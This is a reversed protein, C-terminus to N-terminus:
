CQSSSLIKSARTFRDNVKASSGTGYRIADLYISDTLLKNYYNDIIADRSANLFEDSKQSFFISVSELIAINIRGRSYDTPARFNENGFFDYTYRMVRLFDQRLRDIESNSMKNIKRMAKELFEDMSNNYEAKYDQIKFALYRLVAERDKMRTPSIGYDVANKFETTSALEKLLETAPGIFICNRIEQRELKTGGTNIRNFIDYVVLMPVSPKLIYIMFNKDEIRSRLEDDLDSFHKGELHPLAKLGELAFNEEHQPDLFAHLASTRQLGDVIIYKGNLDLRFYLPPLPINLIISEIFQSKQYRKWVLNRQFEPNLIIRGQNIRRLLEYTSIKDDKIDIEESYNPPYANSDVQQEDVDVNSRKNYSYIEDDEIIIETSQLWSLITNVRRPITSQAENDSISIVFDKLDDAKVQQKNEFFKIVAQFLPNKTIAQKVISAKHSQESIALRKGLETVTAYNNENEIFGLIEAAHRYYRGQRATFELDDAIDSDTRAGEYIAEVAQVVKELRDAQPIDKTFYVM